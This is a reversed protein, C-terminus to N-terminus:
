HMAKGETFNQWLSRIEKENLIEMSKWYKHVAYEVCKWYEICKRPRSFRNQFEISEIGCPFGSSM